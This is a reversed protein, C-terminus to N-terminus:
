IMLFDGTDEVEELLYNTDYLVKSVKDNVVLEAKNDKWKVFTRGSEIFDDLDLEYVLDIFWVGNDQLIFEDNRIHALVMCYEENIKIALVKINNELVRIEIENDDFFRLAEKLFHASVFCGKYHFRSNIDPKFGTSILQYKRWEDGAKDDIINYRLIGYLRSPDVILYKDDIKKEYKNFDEWWGIFEEKTKVNNYLKVFKKVLDKEYDSM